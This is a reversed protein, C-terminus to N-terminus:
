TRAILPPFLFLVLQVIVSMTSAMTEWLAARLIEDDPRNLLRMMGKFMIVEKIV